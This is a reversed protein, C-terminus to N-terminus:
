VRRAWIMGTADGKTARRVAFGQAELLAALRAPTRVGDLAHAEMAIRRVRSLVGAAAAGELIEYEAGECDMKLLDVTAIGHDAFVDALTRAPVALSARGPEAIHLSHGAVNASVHLDRPGSAGAVAAWVARVNKLGNRAVNATLLEFNGPHPEFALVSGRGVARGADVAFAGIHAGIDVVTDGECLEFGDPTYVRHLFVDKLVAVDLTRPRAQLELGNRLRYVLRDPRRRGYTAVYHDWWNAVVRVFGASAALKTWAGPRVRRAAVAASLLRSAADGGAPPQPHDADRAGV